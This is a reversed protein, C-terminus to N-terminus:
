KIEKKKNKKRYEKNYAKIEEKHDQYYKRHYKSKAQIREPKQDHTHGSTINSLDRRIQACESCFHQGKELERGCNQEPCYRKKQCNKERRYKNRCEKCDPRLGKWIKGNKMKINARHFFETTAPYIKGCEPKCCQRMGEENKAIGKM